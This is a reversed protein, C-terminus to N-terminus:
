FLISRSCAGLSLLPAVLASICAVVVSRTTTGGSLEFPSAVISVSSGLSPPLPLSLSPPLAPSLFFLSCLRVRCLSLSSMSFSRSLLFSLALFLAGKGQSTSLSNGYRRKCTHVQLLQARVSRCAYSIYYTDNSPQSNASCSATTGRGCKTCIVDRSTITGSCLICM